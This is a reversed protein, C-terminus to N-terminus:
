QPRTPVEPLSSGTQPRGRRRPSSTTSPDTDGAWGLRPPLRGTCSTSRTRWPASSRAATRWGLPSPPQSRVAPATLRPRRSARDLSADPPAARAGLRVLARGAREMDDPTRVEGGVLVGAEDLNPTVVTALPVLRRVVLREADRDLLRDGSTAIMVPDLVYNPLRRRAIGDAVTEVLSASGLMGSKTATPPLDDAVADLQRTVLDISVPEWARVGVTNQATVATIVSTGFVGFQHFTKLDAQIGAGGGSDSGAITLAIKVYRGHLPGECISSGCPAAVARPFGYGTIQLRRDAIKLAALGSPPPSEREDLADPQHLLRERRPEREPAGEHRGVERAGGAPRREDGLQLPVGHRDFLHPRAGEQLESIGVRRLPNEAHDLWAAPALVIQREPPAPHRQHDVGNLIGPVDARQDARRVGEAGDSRDHQPARRVRGAGLRQTGRHPRREPMRDHHEVVGAEDGPRPLVVHREPGGGRVADRQMAGQPVLSSLLPLPRDGHDHAVFARADARLEVGDRRLAHRDRERLAGLRKVDGHRRPDQEVLHRTATSGIRTTAAPSQPSHRPLKRLTHMRRSALSSLFCRERKWGGEVQGRQPRRMAHRSLIGITEHSTSRPRQREHPLGIEMCYGIM